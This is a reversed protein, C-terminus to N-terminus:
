KITSKKYFVIATKRQFYKRECLIRGTSQLVVFFFKFLNLKKGHGAWLKLIRKILISIKDRLGNLLAFKLILINISYLEILMEQLIQLQYEDDASIALSSEEYFKKKVTIFNFVHWNLLHIRIKEVMSECYDDDHGLVSLPIHCKIGNYIIHATDIFYINKKHFTVCNKEESGM